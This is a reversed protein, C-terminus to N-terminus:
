RLNEMIEQIEPHLPRGLVFHKFAEAFNEKVSTGGYPTVAIPARLVEKTPLTDPLLPIIEAVLTADLTPDKVAARVLKGLEVWPPTREIVDLIKGMLPTSTAKGGKRVSQVVRLQQEAEARKMQPTIELVKYVPETSLEVFRRRTELDKWFRYDYRHGFEHIITGVDEASRTAKLSLYVVDKDPFYSANTRGGLSKTIFVKCSLLAAPFGRLSNAAAELCELAKAANAKSVGPMLNVIFPGFEFQDSETKVKPALWKFELVLDNLRAITDPYTEKRKVAHTLNWVEQLMKKVRTRQQPGMGHYWDATIQSSNGFFGESTYIQLLAELATFAKLVPGNIGESQYDPIADALQQYPTKATKRM